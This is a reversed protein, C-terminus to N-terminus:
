IYIIGCLYNEQFLEDRKGRQSLFFMGNWSLFRGNFACGNLALSVFLFIYAFLSSLSIIDFVLVLFFFLFFFSCERM